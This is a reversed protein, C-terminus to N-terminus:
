SGEPCPCTDVTHSATAEQEVADTVVVEFVLRSGTRGMEATCSSTDGCQGGEGNVTWAYSYPTIGSSAHATVTVNTYPDATAPGEVSLNLPPFGTADLSTGLYSSLESWTNYYYRRPSGFYTGWVIGTAQRYQLAYPFRYFYVPAGSDGPDSRAQVEYSCFVEENGIPGPNTCTGLVPGQTTGSTRGTKYVTQGQLADGQTAIYYWTGVTTSGAGNGTGVTTTEAVRKIMSDDAFYRVLMADTNTYGIGGYLEWLPNATVYGVSDTISNSNQYMVTGTNGGGWGSCHAATLFYKAGDNGTVNFGMTCAGYTTGYNESVEIGAGTPRWDGQVSGTLGFEDPYLQFTLANTPIGLGSALSRIGQIASSDRIGVRVRNLGEDADLLRIDLSPSSHSEIAEKWGVLDSFPFQGERVEIDPLQSGPLVVAARTDVLFQSVAQRVESARGVDTVYAVIKADPAVFLGGFGPVEHELTLFGDEVGRFRNALQMGSASRLPAPIRGHTPETVDTCAGAWVVSAIACVYYAWSVRGYIHHREIHMLCEGLSMHPYKPM